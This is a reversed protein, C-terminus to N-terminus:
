GIRTETRRDNLVINVDQVRMNPTLFQSLSNVGQAPFRDFPYGMPKRDPYKRDRVGCYSAADSCQGSLNQDVRDQEYDSIMVFLECRYGSTNGRPILMHQPWGCGCFNFGAEGSSEPAPKNALSRFTREYPITVNSDVSRRRITNQGPRLAAIFRELEVMLRRQERLPLQQGREDFKPAIFIRVMGLRQAGSANNVQINYNFPVHQLHTYRVFVNGRPAFDLGNTMNVDSQQWFTQFVNPQLGDSQVQVSAINIGPFTLQNPTYPALNQLYVQFCDDVLAHLRYFAPDRMSTATDGMVGFALFYVDILPL